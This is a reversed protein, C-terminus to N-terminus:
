TYEKIMQNLREKMAASTTSKKKKDEMDAISAKYGAVNHLVKLHKDGATVLYKGSPSIALASIPETHVDNFTEEEEGSTADYLSVDYGTAIAVSLGDPAIACKCPGNYDYNGTHLLYPDQNRQYEVNTDWIKWTGDKSITVMRTSDLSFAFHYVSAKHGKLDMARKVEKFEGTKTFVVEWIKVDPTFGCSGVFRGCPSVAVYNNTMQNTNITAIIEGKLDWILITTDASATMMYKGNSAIGINIIDRENR